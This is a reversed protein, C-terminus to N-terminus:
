PAYATAKLQWTFTDPDDAFAKSDLTLSEIVVTPFRDFARGWVVPVFATRLTVAAEVWTAKDDPSRAPPKAFPGFSMSDGAEQALELLQRRLQDQTTAPAPSPPSPPPLTLRYSITAHDLAPTFTRFAAGSQLDAAYARELETPTGDVRDFQATALSGGCQSSPSTWGWAPASRALAAMASLCASVWAEASIGGNDPMPTVLPPPPPPVPLAPRPPPPPPPPAAPYLLLGVIGIAGAGLALALLRATGTVPLTSSASPRIRLAAPAKASGLLELLSGTEVTGTAALYPALAAHARDHQAADFSSISGQVAGAALEPPVLLRTWARGGILDCFLDIASAATDIVADGDPPIIGDVLQFLWYRGDPLPLLALGTRSGAAPFRDALAVAGVLGAAKQDPATAAFGFQCCDAGSRTAIFEARTLAAEQRAERRATSASTALGWEFGLRWQSRGFRYLRSTPTTTM